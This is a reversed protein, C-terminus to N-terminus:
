VVHISPMRRDIEARRAAFEPRDLETIPILIRNGAFRTSDLQGDAVMRLVAATSCGLAKAFEKPECCHRDARAHGLDRGRRTVPPVPRHVPAREHPRLITTSM